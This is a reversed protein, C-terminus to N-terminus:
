DAGLVREITDLLRAADVGAPLTESAGPVVATGPAGPALAIIKLEPLARRLHAALAAGERTTAQADAILVEADRARCLELAAHPDNAAGVEYGARGLIAVVDDRLAADDIAVAVFPVYAGRRRRRRFARGIAQRIAGGRSPDSLYDRIGVLQEGVAREDSCVGFGALVRSMEGPLDITIRRAGGRM